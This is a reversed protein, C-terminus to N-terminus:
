KVNQFFVRPRCGVTVLLTQFPLVDLEQKMMDPYWDSKKRIYMLSQVTTKM